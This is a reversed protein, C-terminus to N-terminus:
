WNLHVAWYAQAAWWGGYREVAYENAWRLQCIPDDWDCGTKSYPLAQPLGHAGTVPETANPNWGSERTVIYDVAAWDSQPIGAQSMWDEKSGSPYDSVPAPPPAPTPREAAVPTPQPAAAPAVAVTIPKDTEAKTEVRATISNHAHRAKLTSPAPLHKPLFVFIGM